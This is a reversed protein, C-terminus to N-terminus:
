TKCSRSHLDFCNAAPDRTCLSRTLCISACDFICIHICGRTCKCTCFCGLFACARVKDQADIDAKAELLLAVVERSGKEVAM